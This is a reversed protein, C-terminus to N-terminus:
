DAFQVKDQYKMKLSIVMTFQQLISQWLSVKEMDNTISGSEKMNIEM